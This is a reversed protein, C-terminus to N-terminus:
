SDGYGLGKLKAIVDILEGLRQQDLAPRAYDKPLDGKLRPNVAEIAIMADDVRRGISAMRASAQLYPWRADAPEWFINATLYEDPDEPNAGAYDGEGGMLKARHAEFSDSTYQLFILGIVVHKNEAADMKNRLKDAMLWLKAEFGPNAGSDSKEKRAKPATAAKPM